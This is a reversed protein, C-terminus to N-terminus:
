PTVERAIRTTLRALTEGRQSTVIVTVDFLGPAIPTVTERGRHGPLGLDVDHRGLQLWADPRQLRELRSSAALHAELGGYASAITRRQAEEGGLAATLVITIISLAVMLEVVTFGRTRGVM